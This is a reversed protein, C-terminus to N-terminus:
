RHANTCGGDHATKTIPATAQDLIANLRRAYDERGYLGLREHGRAALRTRLGDDLWLRRIGEAIEEVSTPDALVAADGAQERVGRIDSTLVPCGLGWAELIPINTPGFFTPMVLAVAEAYLAPMDKAAVYGLHRVRNGMGLEQARAVLETWASERIRGSRSGVLVLDVVLGDRALAGLGEVLRLHNKHPWLQAPYFLYREPLSYARRVRRRDELRVAAPTAPLFPLVAVREAEILDGYLSLVDEKGVESDTLILTAEGIGNRFLHERYEWEGDASVEPFEPHLRHQLDHVALVFPIGAELVIGLPVTYLILDVGLSRLWIHVDERREPRRPPPEENRGRLRAYAQLLAERQDVSLRDRVLRRLRVPFARPTSTPTLRAIEWAHGGLLPDSPLINDGLVVFEESRTPRLEAIVDLMTQGYQYTGGASENTM